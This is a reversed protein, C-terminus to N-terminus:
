KFVGRPMKPGNLPFPTIDEFYRVHFENARDQVARVAGQRGNYFGMVRVVLEIKEGRGIPRGENARLERVKPLLDNLYMSTVQHGNDTSGDSRFGRDGGKLGRNGATYTSLIRKGEYTYAVAYTNRRRSILYLFVMDRTYKPMEGWMDLQNYDTVGQPMESQKVLSYGFRSQFYDNGLVRPPIDHEKAGGADETPVAADAGTQLRRREEEEYWIRENFVRQHQVADGEVLRHMEERIADSSSRASMREWDMQPLQAAIESEKKDEGDEVDRRMLRDNTFRILFQNFFQQGGQQPKLLAPVRRYKDPFMGARPRPKGRRLLALSQRM